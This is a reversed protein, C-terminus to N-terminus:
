IMFEEDPQSGTGILRKMRSANLAKVQEPPIMQPNQLNRLFDQVQNTLFRDAEIRREEEKQQEVQMGTIEDRVTSELTSIQQTVRQNFIM